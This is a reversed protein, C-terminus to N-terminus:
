FYDVLRRLVANVYASRSINGSERDLQEAEQRVKEVLPGYTELDEELKAQWEEVLIQVKELEDKDLWIGSCEPCRDIAIGSSCAYNFRNLEVGPCKPCSVENEVEDDISFMNKNIADLSDRMERPFTEEVTRVIQGLEGGDLWEGGCGTCTEIKGGEYDITRLGGGCRPCTMNAGKGSLATEIDCINGHDARFLFDSGFM